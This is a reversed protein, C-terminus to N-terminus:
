EHGVSRVRPSAKKKQPSSNGSNLQDCTALLAEAYQEGAEWVWEDNVLISWFLTTIIGYVATLIIPLDINLTTYEGSYIRYAMISLCLAIVLLLIAIAIKKLGRMNRRFGYQANEKEVLPFDRGRTQEKLWKIASAYVEDADAPHAAEEERTPFDLDPISKSLYAHYRARSFTDLRGSHRLLMTTPWGGRELLIRKEVKKGQTRAL